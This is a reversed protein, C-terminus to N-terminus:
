RDDAKCGKNWTKIAGRETVKVVAYKCNHCKIKCEVSIGCMKSTRVSIMDSGCKPCPNIYKM